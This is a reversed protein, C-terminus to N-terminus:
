VGTAYSHKKGQGHQTVEMQTFPQKKFERAYEEVKSHLKETGQVTYISSASYSRWDNNEHRLLVIEKKLWQTVILRM